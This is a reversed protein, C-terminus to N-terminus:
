KSQRVFSCTSCDVGVTIPSQFWLWWGTMANKFRHEEKRFNVTQGQRNIGQYWKYLRHEGITLGRFHILIWTPHRWFGNRGVGGRGVCRPPGPSSQATNEIGACAEISVVPPQLNKGWGFGHQALLPLGGREGLEPAPFKCEQAELPLYIFTLLCLFILVKGFSSIKSM